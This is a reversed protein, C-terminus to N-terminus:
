IRNHRSALERVLNTWQGMVKDVSLRECIEVAHAGFSSREAQNSMLRDLAKALAQINAAPVLLGDIEHRIIDAPGSQCDFSVVPLGCAMSETLVNPFGEYRSSLVFLDASQMAELTNKTLGPLCVCHSLGLRLVLCELAKREPGEGRIELMWDPHLPAVQVFAQLLLDFGKQSVLRGMALLKKGSRPPVGSALGLSIPIKPVPNPIVKGRRRIATPYFSLAHNTQCVVRAALRYVWPRLSRWPQQLKNHHPDNREGAIVPIEAGVLALLAVMNATENFSIVVDPTLNKVYRRLKLLRDAFRFVGLLPYGLSRCFNLGVFAVDPHLPYFYPGPSDLTILSVPWGMGAWYNAMISMVREAGGHLRSTGIFMIKRETIEPM